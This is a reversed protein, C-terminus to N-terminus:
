CWAGPGYSVAASPNSRGAFDAGSLDERSPPLLRDALEKMSTSGFEDALASVAAPIAAGQGISAIRAHAKMHWIADPLALARAAALLVLLEADPGEPAAPRSIISRLRGVRAQLRATKNAALMRLPGTHTLLGRDILSAVSARYDCPGDPHASAAIRAVHHRRIGSSSLSLLVVEEVLSLLPRVPVPAPALHPKSRRLEDGSLQVIADYDFRRRHAV